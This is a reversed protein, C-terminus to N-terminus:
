KLLLIINHEVFTCVVWYTYASFTKQTALSHTNNLSIQDAFQSLFKQINHVMIKITTKQKYIRKFIMKSFLIYRLVIYNHKKVVQM